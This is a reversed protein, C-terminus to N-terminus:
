ASLSRKNWVDPHRGEGLHPDLLSRLNRSNEAIGRAAVALRELYSSVEEPTSHADTETLEDTILEAYGLVVTANQLLREVIVDSLQIVNAEESEGDSCPLDRQIRNAHLGHTESM